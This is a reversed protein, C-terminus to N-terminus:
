PMSSRGKRSPSPGAELDHGVAMRVVDLRRQGQGRRQVEVVEVVHDGRLVGGRLIVPRDVLVQGIIRDPVEQVVPAVTRGHRSWYSGVSVLRRASRLGRMPPWGVEDVGTRRTPAGPSRGGRRRDPCGRVPAAVQDAMGARCARRARPRVRGSNTKACTRSGCGGYMNARSPEQRVVLDRRRGRRPSRYWSAYRWGSRRGPRGGARRGSASCGIM